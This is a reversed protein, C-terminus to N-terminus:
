ASASFSAAGISRRSDLYNAIAALAIPIPSCVALGLLGYWGDRDWELTVGILGFFLVLLCLYFLGHIMGAFVSSPKYLLFVRQPRSRPRSAIGTARASKQHDVVVAWARFLLALVAFVGFGLAMDGLEPDNLSGIMVVVGIAVFSASIFFLVHLTWAWVGAPAYLLFWRQWNFRAAPGADLPAGGRKQVSLALLKSVIEDRQEQTYKRFQIAKDPDDLRDAADQLERLGGLDRHLTTVQALANRASWRHWLYQALPVLAGLLAKPLEDLMGQIMKHM